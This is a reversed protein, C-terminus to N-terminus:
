RQERSEGSRYMLVDDEGKVGTILFNLVKDEDFLKLDKLSFVV